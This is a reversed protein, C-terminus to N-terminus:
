VEENALRTKETLAIREEAVEKSEFVDVGWLYFEGAYVLISPQNDLLQYM